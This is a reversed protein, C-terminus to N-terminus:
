SSVMMQLIEKSEPCTPDTCIKKFLKVSPELDKLLKEWRTVMEDKTYWNIKIADKYNQVLIGEESQTLVVYTALQDLDYEPEFFTNKRNKVEIVGNQTRGDTRGMILVPCNDITITSKVLVNTTDIEGLESYTKLDEIIGSEAQTGKERLATSSKYAEAAKLAAPPLSLPIKNTQDIVKNVSTYRKVQNYRGLTDALAIKWDKYKNHNAIASINSATVIFPKMTNIISNKKSKVQNVHRM